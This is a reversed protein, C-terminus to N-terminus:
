GGEEGEIKKGVSKRPSLKEGRREGEEVAEMRRATADATCRATIEHKM